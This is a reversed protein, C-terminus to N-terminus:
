PTVTMVRLGRPHFANGVAPARVWVLIVQAKEGDVGCTRPTLGSDRKHGHHKPCEKHLFACCLHIRVYLYMNTTNKPWGQSGLITGVHVRSVLENTILNQIRLLLYLFM